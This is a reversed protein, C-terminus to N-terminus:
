QEFFIADIGQCNQNLIRSFVNNIYQLADEVPKGAARQKWNLFFTNPNYAVKCRLESLFQGASKNIVLFHARGSARRPIPVEALPSSHIIGMGASRDTYVHIAPCFVIILFFSGM